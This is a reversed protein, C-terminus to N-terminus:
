SFSTWFGIISPMLANTDATLTFWSFYLDVLCEFNWSEKIVNTDEGAQPSYGHHCFIATAMTISLEFHLSGASFSVCKENSNMMHHTISIRTVVVAWLFNILEIINMKYRLPFRDFRQISYAAISSPNGTMTIQMNKERNYSSKSKIHCHVYWIILLNNSPYSSTM